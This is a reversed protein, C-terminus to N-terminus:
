SISKSVSEVVDYCLLIGCWRSIHRDRKELEDLTDLSVQGASSARVGADVGNQACRQVLSGLNSRVASAVILDNNIKLM